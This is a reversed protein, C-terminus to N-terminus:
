LTGRDHSNKHPVQIDKLSSDPQKVKDDPLPLAMMGRGMRVFTEPQHFHEELQRMLEPSLSCFDEEGLGVVLFDGAVIDYIEGNVEDRLARNLEKGFVKGNGDMILAVPENFPYIAEIEGGVANQLDELECGIQVAQPYMNPKVLLVDMKLLSDVDIMKESEVKFETNVLTVPDLDYVSDSYSKRVKEQAESLNEARVTVTKEITETIKIDYEKM